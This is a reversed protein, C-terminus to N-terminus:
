SILGLERSHAIAEESHSFYCLPVGANEVAEKVKNVHVKAPTGVRRIYICLISEPFQQVVDAYIYPDQQTDDGLLVFKKNPFTQLIRSIRRFKGHHNNQGTSLLQSFTKIHNLLMIGRPLQHKGIFENIYHYLNWESSSVYFFTNHSPDNDELNGLLRYHNVTGEFPRRSHANETFLVFLRKRLNASHSILFTDDIDSICAFSKIDPVILEGMSTATLMGDKNFLRVTCEYSGPLMTEVTKWEFEFFGDNATTTELVKKGVQLTIRAGAIPRILFLRILALTNKVVGRRFHKRVTPAMSLAHGHVLMFSGNSYGTYVRLLPGTQLKLLRFLIGKWKRFWKQGGTASM